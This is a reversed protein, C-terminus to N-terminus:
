WGACRPGRGRSSSCYFIVKGVEKFKEYFLDLDDYFTQAAFQYSGRVHGGKFIGSLDTFLLAPSHFYSVAHDNRRVDIIAYDRRTSDHHRVLEAVEEKTM